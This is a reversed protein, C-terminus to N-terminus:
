IGYACHMEVGLIFLYEVRSKLFLTYKSWMYCQRCLRIVNAGAKPKPGQRRAGASFVWAWGFVVTLFRVWFAGPAARRGRSYRESGDM